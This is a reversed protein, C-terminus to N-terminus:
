DGPVNVPKVNVVFTQKLKANSKLYIAVAGIAILLVIAGLVYGIIKLVAFGGRGSHSNMLPIGATKNSIPAAHCARAIRVQPGCPFMARRKVEGRHLPN